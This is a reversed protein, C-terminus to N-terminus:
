EWICRYASGAEHQQIQEDDCALTVDFFDKVISYFNFLYNLSLRKQKKKLYTEQYLYSRPRCYLNMDKNIKNRKNSMRITSKVVMAERIGKGVLKSMDLTYAITYFGALYIWPDM